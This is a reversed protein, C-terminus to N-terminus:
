VENGTLPQFHVEIAARGGALSASGGMPMGLRLSPVLCEEKNASSDINTFNREGAAYRSLLEEVTIIQRKVKM